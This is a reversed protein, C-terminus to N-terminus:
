LSYRRPFVIQVESPNSHYWLPNPGTRAGTRAFYSSFLIPHLYVEVTKGLMEISCLPASLLLCACSVLRLM